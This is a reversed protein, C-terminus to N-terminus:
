KYQFTAPEVVLGSDFTALIGVCGAAGKQTKWNFQYSGNGLNQLGSNGSAAIPNETATNAPGGNPCAVTVTQLNVWPATCVGPSPNPSSCYSLATVPTNPSSFQQWQLPVAQGAKIVNIATGTVPAAFGAFSSFSGQIIPANPTFTAVFCSLGGGGGSHTTDSSYSLLINEDFTSSPCSQGSAKLFGPGGLGSIGAPLSYHTTVNYILSSCDSGSCDLHVEPCIPNTTQGPITTASFDAYPACNFNPFNIGPNFTYAALSTPSPPELVPVVSLIIQEGGANVIGTFEYDDNGIPFILKSGASLTQTQNATFGGCNSSDPALGFTRSQGPALTGAYSDKALGGPACYPAGQGTSTGSLTITGIFSTTGNNTVTLFGTDPNATITGGSNSGGTQYFTTIGFNYGSGVLTFTGPTQSTEFADGNDCGTPSGGQLVYADTVLAYGNGADCPSIRVNNSHIQSDYVALNLSKDSSQITLLAGSQLQQSFASATSLFLLVLCPITERVIRM